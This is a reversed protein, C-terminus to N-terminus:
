NGVYRGPGFAKTPTRPSFEWQGNAIHYPRFLELLQEVHNVFLSILRQTKGYAMLDKAVVLANQCASLEVLPPKGKNRQQMIELVNACQKPAYSQQLIQTYLPERPSPAPINEAPMGATFDLKEEPTLVQVESGGLDEGQRYIKGLPLQYHIFAYSHINNDNIEAVVDVVAALIVFAQARNVCRGTQQELLVIIRGMDDEDGKIKPTEGKFIDPDQFIKLLRKIQDQPALTADRLFELIKLHQSRKFFETKFDPALTPQLLLTANEPKPDQPLFALFRIPVNKNGNFHPNRRYFFQQLAEDWKM